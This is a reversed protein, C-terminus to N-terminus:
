VRLTQLAQELGRRFAPQTTAALPAIKKNQLTDAAAHFGAAYRAFTADCRHNAPKPLTAWRAALRHLCVALGCRRRATALRAAPTRPM